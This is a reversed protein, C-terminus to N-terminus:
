IIKEVWDKKPGEIIGHQIDLLVNYLQNSLSSNDNSGNYGNGIIYERSEFTIKEIPSIIAATGTGFMEVVRGEVIEKILEDISIKREAVRLNQWRGGRGIVGMKVLEIVSLRTIGSLITNDFLAPTVLENNSFLIFINMTSVETLLKDKGYLWLIQDYKEGKAGASREELVKVTPAYNSAIKIDGCGGKWARCYQDEVYLSLGKQTTTTPPPTTKCTYNYYSAVPSCIVFLMAKDAVKIGLSEGMGIMCPRIYLSSARESPIWKEDVCVLAKINKELESIDPKPLALRDASRQFREMNLLPRFLNVGGTRGLSRYAKLGEFCSIGYHLVSSSPWMKFPSYEKIVPNGWGAEKSWRQILMHDTFHEGFGKPTQIKKPNKTKFIKLM